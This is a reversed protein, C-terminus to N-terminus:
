SNEIQTGKKIALCKKKEKGKEQMKIQKLWKTRKFIPNEYM